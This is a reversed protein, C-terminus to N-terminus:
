ASILCHRKSSYNCIFWIPNKGFSWIRAGHTGQVIHQLEKASEFDAKLVEEVSKHIMSFPTSSPWLKQGEALAMSLIPANILLKTLYFHVSLIISWRSAASVRGEGRRDNPQVVQMRQQLSECWEDLQMTLDLRASMIERPLYRSPGDLNYDYLREVASGQIAHIGSYLQLYLYKHPRSYGVSMLSRFFHGQDSLSGAYSDAVLANAISAEPLSVRIYQPAILLPRGLLISLLRHRADAPLSFHTRSTQSANGTKISLVFGYGNIRRVRQVTKM